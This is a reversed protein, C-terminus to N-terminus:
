SETVKELIKQTALFGFTGTVFSATGFGSQCDLPKKYNEPKESTIKGDLFYRPKETSFVCAVGMSGERPLGGNRRLDKRLISLMPDEHSRSLDACQVLGPNIRGGAAGVTVVPIQRERCAMVLHYKSLGHDIGDIAGDFHKSFIQNETERNYAESIINVQCEPNIQLVREKLTETKFQGVTQKLTHIQRNSNSVCIDDFDVLTLEGVGSRVLAEVAWSGVGGLGVVLIHSAQIKEFAKQGFLRQIGGFRIDFPSPHDLDFM